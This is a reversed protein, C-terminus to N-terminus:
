DVFGSEVLVAVFKEVDQRAVDEEVNYQEKLSKVAEDVTCDQSFLRWLFAGSDNLNIMGHFQKSMEGVPVVINEGGVSRLVFGSKIKM